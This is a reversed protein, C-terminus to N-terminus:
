PQSFASQRNSRHEGVLAPLDDRASVIPPHLRTIRCSMGLRDANALSSTAAVPGLQREDACEARADHTGPSGQEIANRAHNYALILVEQSRLVEQALM